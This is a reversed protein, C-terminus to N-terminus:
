RLIRRKIKSLFTHLRQYCELFPNKRVVFGAMYARIDKTSHMGAFFEDRREPMKVEDHFGANRQSALAFDVMELSGCATKLAVEGKPSNVLVLSVGKDDDFHSAVEAVNWLDALTIDAHSRGNKAPCSYCSPRLTLDQLFLMMYPDEKYPVSFKENGATVTFGYHRWGYSKDRFKVSTIPSGYKQGLAQVYKEWLGPSPAGHCVMEVTLLNDYSKGLYSNLGAVQCPTGTFMVNRGGDLYQRVESYSDYMDSQVYKSGRMAEVGAMDVAEAHGVTMDPNIVAGFVVGGNAVVSKALSPFVGGSSSEAVYEPVRVSYSSLVLSSDLPNLVPCVKECKGCNLCLDPNAMPYEFGQRDRRMIICQALCAAMCATCGSCKQKDVIRIM